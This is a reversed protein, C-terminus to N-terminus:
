PCPTNCVIVGGDCVVADGDCETIRCEEEGAPLNGCAISRRSGPECRVDCDPQTCVFHCTSGDKCECKGDACDAYCTSGNRCTPECPGQTCAFTCECGDDCECAGACPEDCCGGGGCAACALPEACQGRGGEVFELDTAGSVVQCAPILLVPTLLALGAATAALKSLARIVRPYRLVQM